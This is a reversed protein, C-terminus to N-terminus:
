PTGTQRDRVQADDSHGAHIINVRNRCTQRMGRLSFSVRVYMVCDIKGERVSENKDVRPSM